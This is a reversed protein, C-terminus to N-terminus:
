FLHFSCSFGRKLVINKEVSGEINYFLCYRTDSQTNSELLVVLIDTSLIDSPQDKEDPM